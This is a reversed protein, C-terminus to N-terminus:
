RALYFEKLGYMKVKEIVNVVTSTTVGFMQAIAKKDLGKYLLRVVSGSNSEYKVGNLEAVNGYGFEINGVMEVVEDLLLEDVMEESQEKMQNPSLEEVSTQEYKTKRAMSVAVNRVGQYIYYELSCTESNFKQDFGKEYFKVLFEGVVDEACFKNTPLGFKKMVGPAYQQAKKLVVEAEIKM